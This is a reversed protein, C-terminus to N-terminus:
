YSINPNRYESMNYSLPTYTPMRLCATERVVHIFTPHRVVNFPINAEYFTSAWVKDLIEKTSANFDKPLSCQCLERMPIEDVEQLSPITSQSSQLLEIHAIRTTIGCQSLVPELEEVEEETRVNNISELIANPLTPVIGGCNEFLQKAPRLIMKCISVDRIGRQPNRYGLHMLMRDARYAITLPCFKCKVQRQLKGAFVGLDDYWHNWADNRCPM